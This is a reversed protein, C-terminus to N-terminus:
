VGKEAFGSRFSDMDVTTSAPERIAPTPIRDGTVRQLAFSMSLEKMARAM